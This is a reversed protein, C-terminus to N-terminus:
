QCQARVGLVFLAFASEPQVALASRSERIAENYRHAQFLIGSVGTGTVAVPDLERARQIWMIAEDTRGKCSLWLAYGAQIAGDNPALELARKYEAEAQAWDWVEQFTNGLLEHAEAVDPDLELAKRAAATAKPRTESPPVGAFVTGLSTYAQAKGLYAPAFTPDQKIAADFDVISQEITARSNGQSLVFRGKLYSEYVEPAVPRAAALRAHERGTVTVEVKEAISQAIESELALADRLERDYTESWFHEDTAGRILQATVRIQTGDRIVSGEVVADVGLTRAIEPVSLQPNKFRTVSTHSTVRLDHIGALRGILAETVGDALYDQSADGSLNRFPLVAISHIRPPVSATSRLRVALYGTALAVITAVAALAMWLRDRSSGQDSAIKGGVPTGTDPGSDPEEPPMKRTRRWADLEEPIAYVSGRKDHLHRHVPMGERKEWRQVTTVDRNLYGAIEKWSDLRKDILKESPPMEFSSEAM